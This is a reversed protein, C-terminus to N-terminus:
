YGRRGIHAFRAYTPRAVSRGYFRRWKTKRGFWHRYSRYGGKWRRYASPRFRRKRLGGWRRSKSRFRAAIAAFEPLPASPGAFYSLPLEKVAHRILLRRSKHLTKYLHPPNGKLLTVYSDLRQARTQDRFGQKAARYQQWMADNYKRVTIYAGQEDVAPVDM